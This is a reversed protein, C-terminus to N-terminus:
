PKPQHLGKSIYVWRCPYETGSAEVAGFILALLTVFAQSYRVANEKKIAPKPLL